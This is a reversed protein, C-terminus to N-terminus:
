RLDGDRQDVARQRGAEVEDRRDHLLGADSPKLEAVAAAALDARRAEVEVDVEDAGSGAIVVLLFPVVWRSPARWLEVAALVVALGIVVVTDGLHTVTELVDTSWPTAHDAGWQAVSTTSRRAAGRRLARPLVLIALVVGGAFILSWRRGRARARHRRCRTTAAAACCRASRPQARSGAASRTRRRSRPRARRPRRARTAIRWAAGHGRGRGLALLSCRSRPCPEVNVRRRDVPLRREQSRVVLCWSTPADDSVGTAFGRASARGRPTASSSGRGCRDPGASPAAREAPRCGAAAKRRRRSRRRSGRRRADRDGGPQEDGIHEDRDVGDLVGVRPERCSSSCCRVGSRERVGRGDCRLEAAPM